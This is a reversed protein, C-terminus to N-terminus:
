KSEKAAAAAAAAHFVVVFAVIDAYNEKFNVFVLFNMNGDVNFHTCLPKLLCRDLANAQILQTLYPHYRHTTLICTSKGHPLRWISNKQIKFKVMSVIFQDNQRM